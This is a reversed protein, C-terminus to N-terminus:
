IKKQAQKAREELADYLDDYETNTVYLSGACNLADLIIELEKESINILM